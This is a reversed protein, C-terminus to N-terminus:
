RADEGLVVEGTTTDSWRWLVVMNSQPAETTKIIRPASDEIRVVAELAVRTQGATGESRVLFTDGGITIKDAIQSLLQVSIGPIQTVEGLNAFGTTQRAVIAQAIDPTVDTLLALVDESATNVNVQGEIRQAGGVGFNNLLIEAARNDLGPTTFVQNLSAFTGLGNRRAVIAQATAQTLGAQVLQQVQANNINQKQGGAATTNPAFSDVSFLQALALPETLGAQATEPVNYLTSPLWDKILLVEDLSELRAEKANYPKELSNYYDNKAGEARAQDSNERWDLLSDIQSQTLNLNQLQLETVTNLNLLAGADVIQLRFSDAGVVFKDDGNNGLLYWAGTQDLVNTDTVLALEAMARQIGSEAALRARRAEMRNISAQTYVRQSSVTLALITTAATIVILALVFVSGRRRM